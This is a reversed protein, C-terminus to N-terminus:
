FRAGDELKMSSKFYPLGNQEKKALTWKDKSYKIGYIYYEELKKNGQPILAPGEWSHLQRGWLHMITGDKTTIKKKKPYDEM